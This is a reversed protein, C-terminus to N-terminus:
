GPDGEEDHEDKQETMRGFNEWADKLYGDIVNM